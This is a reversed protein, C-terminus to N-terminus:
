PASPKLVVLVIVCAALLLVLWPQRLLVSSAESGDAVRQRLANGQLLHLGSLAAVFGIKVLLWGSSLFGADAALTFGAIWTGALAPGTVSRDFALVARAFGSAGSGASALGRLALTVALMGSITTVVAILHVAKLVEYM